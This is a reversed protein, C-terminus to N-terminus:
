LLVVIMASFFVLFAVNVGLFSPLFVCFNFTKRWFFLFAWWEWHFQWFNTRSRPFPLTYFKCFCLISSTPLSFGLLIPLPPTPPSSGPLDKITLRTVATRNGCALGLWPRSDHAKAATRRHLGTSFAFFVHHAWMAPLLSSNPGKEVNYLQQLPQSGKKKKKKKKRLLSM